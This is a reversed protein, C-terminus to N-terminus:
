LHIAFLSLVGDILDVDQFGHSVGVDDGVLLGEHVLSAQTYHHIICIPAVEVSFNCILLFNAFTILGLLIKTM